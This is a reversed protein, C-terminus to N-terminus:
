EKLFILFLREVVSLARKYGAVAYGKLLYLSWLARMEGNQRERYGM